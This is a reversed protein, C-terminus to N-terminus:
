EDDGMANLIAKGTQFTIFYTAGRTILAQYADKTSQDSYSSEQRM